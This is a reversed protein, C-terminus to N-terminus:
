GGLSKLEEELLRIKQARRGLAPGRARYETLERRIADMRNEPAPAPVEVVTTPHEAVPVRATALTANVVEDMRPLRMKEKPVSEAREPEAIPLGSRHERNPKPLDMFFNSGPM